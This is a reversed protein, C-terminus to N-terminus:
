HLDTPVRRLELLEVGKAERRRALNEADSRRVVAFNHREEFHFVERLSWSICPVVFSGRSSWYSGSPAKEDAVVLARILRSPASRTRGRDHAVRNSDGHDRAVALWAERKAIEDASTASGDRLRAITEENLQNPIQGGTMTGGYRFSGGSSRFTACATVLHPSRRVLGDAPRQCAASVRVGHTRIM